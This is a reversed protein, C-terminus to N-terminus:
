PRTLETEIGGDEGLITGWGLCIVSKHSFPNEYTLRCNKEKKPRWELYVILWLWLIAMLCFGGDARQWRIPQSSRRLETPSYGRTQLGITVEDAYAVMQFVLPLM